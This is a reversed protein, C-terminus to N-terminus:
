TNSSFLRELTEEGAIEGDSRFIEVEVTGHSFFDVEWREGPVDVRVMITDARYRALTHHLGAEELRDLFAQLRQMADMATM